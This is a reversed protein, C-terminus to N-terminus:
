GGTGLPETALSGTPHTALQIQFLSGQTSLEVQEISDISHRLKCIHSYFSPLTTSPARTLRMSPSRHLCYPHLEGCILFMLEGILYAVREACIWICLRLLTERRELPTHPTNKSEGDLPRTTKAEQFNPPKRCLCRSRIEVQLSLLRGLM